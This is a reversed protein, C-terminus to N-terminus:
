HIEIRIEKLDDNYVFDHHIEKYDIVKFCKPELFTFIKTINIM